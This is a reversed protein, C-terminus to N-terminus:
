LLRNISGLEGFCHEWMGFEGLCAEEEGGDEAGVGLVVGVAAAGDVGHLEIVVLHGAGLSGEGQAHEM